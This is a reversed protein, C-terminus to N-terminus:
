SRGRTWRFTVLSAVVGVVLWAAIMIAVMPLNWEGGQEMAKFSDPLWAARLGQAIWKLPLASAVNQLWEPLMPWTLYIGSIFQPILVLPIVVASAARGSRPLASVAIGLATCCALSLLMVWAATIWGQPDHPLGAGFMLEAVAILLVIQMLTTVLVQGFKGIFYSVPHLPTAGLRKLGGEHKEVAIDIALGQIGSLWPAMALFGPLMYAAGSIETGDPMPMRDAGFISGFLMLMLIPFLFTFIVQDVARFYGVLEVCIRRAGNALISM